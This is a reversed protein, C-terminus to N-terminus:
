DSEDDDSYSKNAKSEEKAAQLNSIADFVTKFKAQLDAPLQGGESDQKKKTYFKTLLYESLGKRFEPLKEM